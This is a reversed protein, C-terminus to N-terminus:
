VISPYFFLYLILKKFFLLAILTILSAIDFADFHPLLKRVPQTVLQTISGLINNLPHQPDPGLWSLVAQALLAVIFINFSLSIFDFAARAFLSTLTMGSSAIIHVLIIKLLILALVIVLTATDIQKFTPVILRAKNVLPQTVKVIFQVIPNYISARVQQLIFRLMMVLIYLSFVTEVLFIFPNEQSMM